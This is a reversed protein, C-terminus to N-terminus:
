EGSGTGQERNGTERDRNRDEEIRRAAADLVGNIFRASEASAFERALRLAENIAVKRPCRGALLEWVALRLINRDVLAMRAVDWHQSEGALLRDAQGRVALADALISEAEAVTPPPERSQRIFVGLLELAADGQVDLCCLGQM